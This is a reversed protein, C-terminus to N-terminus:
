FVPRVYLVESAHMSVGLGKQGSWFLVDIMNKLGIHNCILDQDGAFILVPLRELVQSIHLCSIMILLSFLM